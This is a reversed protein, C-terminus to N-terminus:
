RSQLSDVFSDDSSRHEPVIKLAVYRDLERERAKYVSGMGGRGLLSEVVYRETFAKRIADLEPDIGTKPITADLTGGCGDCFRASERNDRQCLSCLM